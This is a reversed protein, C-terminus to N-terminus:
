LKVRVGAQIAKGRSMTVGDAARDRLDYRKQLLDLQRKMIAPKAAKMEALQTAFSGNGDAGEAAKPKPEEKADLWGFVGVAALGLIAPLAWALSNRRIM